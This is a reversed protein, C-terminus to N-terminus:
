CLCLGVTVWDPEGGREHGLSHKETM